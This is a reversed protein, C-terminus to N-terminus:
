KGIRIGAFAGPWLSVNDNITRLYPLDTGTLPVDTNIHTAVNYSIGGFVSFIPAAKWGLAVRLRTWETTVDGDDFSFGKPEFLTSYLLDPEVFLPTGPIGFHIGTGFTPAILTQDALPRTGVALISYVSRVGTRLGAYATGTEDAWSQGHFSGKRSINVLGIPFGSEYDSSLNILGIQHGQVTGALNLVGAGQVGQLSGFAMNFVGSAQVGEVGGAANFVGAGQGGQVSGAAANFIGAGQGGQVSGAALNFIGAGQGGQVNGAAMNFIGSGQGGYVNGAAMSFIGAGQGGHVGGAAMNFIGAGQGGHVGGASMNFIGAGQLGRLSDASINFIGSLQGGRVTDASINFVGSGQWGEVGGGAINFIGAGQVGRVSGGAIGFVGSIQAGSLEEGVISGVQNLQFGRLGGEVANIGVAAQYGELDGRTRNFLFSLQGGRRNAHADTALLAIQTGHWDHRQVDYFISSSFGPEGDDPVRQFERRASATGGRTVTPEGSVPRFSAPTLQTAQGETLTVRAMSWDAGRLLRVSYTGPALGIRMERGAPKNLEAALQDLSDRLFLRGHLAEPRELFASAQRLDTLVIDGSGSLQIDYAAHQPGGRTRETRALTEHYAFQYAEHLTVRGDRSADAAGRLGTNLAHTFFSGGVRDSEQAVESESSSTLIAYGESRTSQDVLFAPVHQGGKIRTLAGSACADVVAIRVDADLGNMGDRFSRYSFGERGLLLGREDAHGSYYVIAEVREGARRLSASQRRLDSFARAIGASDPDLLVVADAPDLGGLEVLTRKFAAADSGAYLLRERGQGGDHHGILLAVRRTNGDGTFAPSPTASWALACALFLALHKM